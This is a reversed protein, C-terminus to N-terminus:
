LSSKLQNYLFEKIGVGHPASSLDEALQQDRMSEFIDQGNSKPFLANGPLTDRMSDLMTKTFIAEFGECAEMLAKEDATDTHKTKVLKGALMQSHITDIDQIM